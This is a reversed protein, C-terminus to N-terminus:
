VIHGIDLKLFLSLWLALLCDLTKKKEKKKEKEEKKKKKKKKPM